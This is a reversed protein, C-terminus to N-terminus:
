VTGKAAWARATVFFPEDPLREHCIERLRARGDPELGATYAGAPGVGLTFPEWWEDFTPHEVRVTLITSEVARLGAASFLEALHGERAGALDSEDHIGPDLVRPPKGSRGSRGRSM